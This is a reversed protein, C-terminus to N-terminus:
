YESTPGPRSPRARAARAFSPQSCAIMSLIRTGKFIDDVRCINVGSIRWCKATPWLLPPCGTGFQSNREIGPRPARRDVALSRIFYRAALPSEGREASPSAIRSEWMSRRSANLGFVCMPSAQNRPMAASLFRVEVATTRRLVVRENSEIRDLACCHDDQGIRICVDRVYAKM